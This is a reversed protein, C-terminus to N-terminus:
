WKKDLSSRYYEVMKRYQEHSFGCHCDWYQSMLNGVDPTYFEGNADVAESQYTCPRKFAQDLFDAPTDCIRDGAWQCNSGNVLEDGNADTDLLGFYHGLFHCLALPYDRFVHKDVVLVSSDARGDLLHQWPLTYGYRPHGGPLGSTSIVYLNIVEPQSFRNKLDQLRELDPLGVLTDFEYLPITDILCPGFSICVPSFISDAVHWAYRISDEQVGTQGLSDSIVHVFVTLKKDLCPLESQRTTFSTTQGSLPQASLLLFVIFINYVSLIYRFLIPIHMSNLNRNQM